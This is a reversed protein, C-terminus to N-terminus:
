EEAKDECECEEKKLESKALYENLVEVGCDCKVTITLTNTNFDLNWEVQHNKLCEPVFDKTIKSKALEYATSAEMFKKQYSQFVPNNIATDDVDTKHLDLYTLVINRFSAEEYSLREVYDVFEQPVVVDFSKSM